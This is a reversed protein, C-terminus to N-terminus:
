QFHSLHGVEKLSGKGLDTWRLKNKVGIENGPEDQHSAEEGNGSGDEQDAAHRHEDRREANRSLM